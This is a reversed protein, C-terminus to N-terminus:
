KKLSGFEFVHHYAQYNKPATFPDGDYYKMKGIGTIRKGVLLKCIEQEILRGRNDKDFEDHWFVDINLKQSAISSNESRDRSGLYVYIRCIATEVLDDAKTVKFISEDIVKWNLEEDDSINPLNPSLPDLTDTSLDKPPYHLLRKLRESKILVTYVDKIYDKGM